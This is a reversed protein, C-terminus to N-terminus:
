RRPAGGSATPQRLVLQGAALRITPPADRPAARPRVRLVAVYRGVALSDGLVDRVRPSSAWREDTISAGPALEREALEAAFDCEVIVGTAQQYAARWREEDWVSARGGEAPRLELKTFFCNPWGGLVIPQRGVNTVTVSAQVRMERQSAPPGSDASVSADPVIRVGARYVLDDNRVTLPVRGAGQACTALPLGFLLLMVLRIVFRM